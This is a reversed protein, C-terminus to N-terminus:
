KIIKDNAKINLLFCYITACTALLVAMCGTFVLMNSARLWFIDNYLVFNTKIPNTDAFVFSLILTLLMGARVTIRIKRKKIGNSVGSTKGAIRLERCVSWITVCLITAIVLYMLIVILEIM